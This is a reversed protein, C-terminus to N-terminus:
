PADGRKWKGDGDADILIPSIVAFPTDGARKWKDRQYTGTQELPLPTSGDATVGLWTDAAGVEVRGSWHTTRQGHVLALDQVLKAGRAGGITLRLRDLVVFRAASVTIDVWVSGDRAAAVLQGPGVAPGGPTASVAVELYPGTTAETRRARIAAIFADQDFPETRPDAVFVFSRAAGDAVWNYDHTDSNGLAAIPHGHDVLTYLDRVSDSMRADDPADFATFGNIVEVANYTLPFPPPWSLGDWEYYDYMAGVRFRPHNLQVIPDGPYTHALALLADPEIDAIADGDVSRTLSAPYVGLHTRVSTLEISPIAAITDALGLARIAPEASDPVNHNALAMVQIGAAVQALVRQENPMMSDDSEAAHVHLDAALAGRPTWARELPIVLEVRGRNESLDVEGEWREHDIGHWAIVKYTGFPIAPTPTCRDSGIRIEAGGPALVIGAITGIAGRALVCATEGQRTGFLDVEGIELPYGSPPVLLIRAGIPPGGVGETVRVALRTSLVAEVLTPDSPGCAALAVLAVLARRM